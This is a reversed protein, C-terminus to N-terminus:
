GIRLSRILDGDFIAKATGRAGNLRVSWTVVDGAIQKHAPDVRLEGAVLRRVEDAGRHVASDGVRVDADAAFCGAVAAPDREGWAREFALAAFLQEARREGYDLMRRIFAPNRDLKSTVGLPWSMEIQRLVVPRYARERGEVRLRRVGDADPVGLAEVLENVKEVFNLEQHLSLNGALANRRDLIDVVSTPEDRPRPERPPPVIRSPNIQLVWIEDPEAELLEQIPPNQSFLGDWYLNSGIRVAPFVPPIAASALVAEVSIRSVPDANFRLGGDDRLHSRFVRFEGTMVEIAGVCLMPSAPTLLREDLAAFSVHAELAARLRRQWYASLANPSQEVLFGLTKQWRLWAVIWDNMLREPLTRPANDHLWFRELARGAERAGAEGAGHELLAHWALLACVAGGSTGSFAVFDHDPHGRALLQKLSGATFATHSGGGQCAVAIRRRREARREAPSRQPAKTRRPEAM